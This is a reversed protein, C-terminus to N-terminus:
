NYHGSSTYNYSIDLVGEWLHFRVQVNEMLVPPKILVPYLRLHYTTAQHVPTYFNVTVVWGHSKWSFLLKIFINIYNLLYLQINLLYLIFYVM